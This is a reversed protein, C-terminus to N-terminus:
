KLKPKPTPTKPKKPDLKPKTLQPREARRVPKTPKSPGVTFKQSKPNSTPNIEKLGSKTGISKAASKSTKPIKNNAPKSGSANSLESVKPANAIQAANAQDNAISQDLAKRTAEVNDGLMQREIKPAGSAVANNFAERDEALQQQLQQTKQSPTVSAGLARKADQAVGAAGTPRNYTLGEAKPDMSSYPKAMQKVDKSGTGLSQYAAKPKGTLGRAMNHGAAKMNHAVANRKKQNNLAQQSARAAKNLAKTEAKKAGPTQKIQSAVDSVKASGNGINNFNSNPKPQAQAQSSSLESVDTPNGYRDTGAMQDVARQRTADHAQKKADRKMSGKTNFTEGIADRAAKAKQYGKFPSSALKGAGKGIQKGAYMVSGAAAWGHQAGTDVGFFQTVKQSGTILMITAAMAFVVFVWTATVGEGMTGDNKANMGWLMAIKYFAIELGQLAVLLSTSFIAQVVQKTKNGSDVDVAFLFVALIQMLGLELFSKVIAYAAFLYAVILSGLSLILPFFDVQFRPYGGFSFITTGVRSIDPADVQLKGEEDKYSTPHYMLWAFLFKGSKRKSDGKDSGDLKYLPGGDGGPDVDPWTIVQDFPVRGENVENKTLDNFGYKVKPLSDSVKSTDITVKSKAPAKSGDFNHSILFEVDNTSGALLQFPLDSVDKNTDKGQGKETQTFGQYWNTTANVLTSTIQGTNMILLVSVALQIMVNKFQPPEKSAVMKIAVWVLYATVVVLAANRAGIIWSGLESNSSLGKTLFSSTGVVHNLLSSAFNAIGYFLKVLWWKVTNIPWMMFSQYQIFNQANYLGNKAEKEAALILFNSM